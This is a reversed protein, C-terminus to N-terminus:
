GPTETHLTNRTKDNKSIAIHDKLLGAENRAILQPPARFPVPLLRKLGRPEPEGPCTHCSSLWRAREWDRCWNRISRM